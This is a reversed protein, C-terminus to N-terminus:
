RNSQPEIEKALVIFRGNEKKYECTSLLLLREQKEPYSTTEYLANEKIQKIYKTYQFEDLDIMDYMEQEYSASIQCVAFIEYIHKENQIYLQITKHEKYYSPDTYKMLGAFMSGDKMHHAYLILNENESLPNCNGDLFPTGAISNEKQFNHHLYFDNDGQRYMVPYHINTDPITIWGISDENQNKLKEYQFTEEQKSEQQPKVETEIKKTNSSSTDTDTTHAFAITEVTEFQKNATYTQQFYNVLQWTSYCFIMCCIILSITQLRNKKKM